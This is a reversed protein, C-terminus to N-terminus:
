SNNRLPLRHSCIEAGSVVFWQQVNGSHERYLRQRSQVSRVRGLAVREDDVEWCASCITENDSFEKFMQTQEAVLGLM